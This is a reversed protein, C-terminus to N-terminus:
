GRGIASGVAPPAVTGEATLWERGAAYDKGMASLSPIKRDAHEAAQALGDRYAALCKQRPGAASTTDCEYCLLLLLSVLRLRTM